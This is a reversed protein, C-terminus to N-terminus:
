SAAVIIKTTRQFFMAPWRKGKNLDDRVDARGRVEVM